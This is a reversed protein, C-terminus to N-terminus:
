KAASCFSVNDMKNHLWLRLIGKGQALFVYNKQRMENHGM